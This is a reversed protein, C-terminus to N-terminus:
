GTKIALLTDIAREARDVAAADRHFGAGPDLGQAPVAAALRLMTRLRTAHDPLAALWRPRFLHPGLLIAGDRREIPDDSIGLLLLGAIPVSAYATRSVPRVLWKGRDDGPIPHREIAPLRAATQPHLRIGVRGRSAAFGGGPASRVITLDDAVLRAGREVLMAALTSKGAGADGAILVARGGIEIASAHCPLAGRWALTLAAVTGYFALPMEGTWDPDPLCDIREGRISDFTAEARWAVRFGDAHVFGGNVTRVPARPPLSTVIRVAIREADAHEQTAVDFQPLPVDSTWRAGFAAHEHTM